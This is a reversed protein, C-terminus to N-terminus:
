TEENPPLTQGNIDINLTTWKVMKKEKSNWIRLTADDATTVYLDPNNPFTALGWVENTWTQNPTYHGNM